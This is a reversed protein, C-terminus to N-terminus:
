ANIQARQQRPLLLHIVVIATLYAGPAIAFIV